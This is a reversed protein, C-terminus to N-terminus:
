RRRWPLYAWHAFPLGALLVVLLVYAFVETM